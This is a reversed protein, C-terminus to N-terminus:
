GSHQKQLSIIADCIVCKVMVSIQSFRICVLYLEPFHAFQQQVSHVQQFGFLLFVVVQLETIVLLPCGLTFSGYTNVLFTVAAANYLASAFSPM